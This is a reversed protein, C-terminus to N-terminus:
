GGGTRATRKAPRFGSGGGQGMLPNYDPKFGKKKKVIAQQVLAEREKDSDRNARNKYGKGALHDEWDQIEQETKQKEAEIRKEEAEAAEQDYKQQLRMRIEEMKEIKSRYVDPNKKYEAAEQMQERKERWNEYRELIPETLHPKIRNYLKYIIFLLILFAWPNCFYLYLWYITYNLYGMVPGPDRTGMEINDDVTEITVEPEGDITDEAM